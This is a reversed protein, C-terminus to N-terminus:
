AGILARQIHAALSESRRDARDHIWTETGRAGPGGYNAHLSVFLSAGARRALDARATLSPIEAIGSRTRQAAGGLEADVLTSLRLVVDRELTGNPGRAGYPSSRGNPADGGHGPDIIVRM